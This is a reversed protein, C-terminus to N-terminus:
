KKKQKVKTTRKRVQQLKNVTAEFDKEVNNAESLQKKQFIEFEQEAKAIAIEHSVTGANNLIDRDSLKLFDDLKAAWDKMYMPTRNLAQLEAFELYASVMRNLTELEKANLYNKAISVDTKHPTNGTWSTLGMSPLSADARHAIV